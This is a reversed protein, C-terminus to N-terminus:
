SEEKRLKCNDGHWRPYVNVAIDQQCHPCLVKERKSGRIAAARKEIVEASYKRGKARESMKKRTEESHTKGYMNNNKGTKAVSLNDLWEQSFPPRKRGTIAKIQKEKESFPQIRGKNAESIRKRAEDTHHKGYFGNKIGKRNQSQWESYEKKLNDYVRSTIKTKYRHQRPNEARMMRFANIMKWHEEGTPYIKTLLWHCIFHERATLNVLNDLDDSGGLSKPTIHHKETYGEFIRQKANSTIQQYWITYKNM